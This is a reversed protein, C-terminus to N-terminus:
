RVVVACCRPLSFRFSLPVAHAPSLHLTCFHTPAHPLTGEPPWPLDIWWDALVVATEDMM